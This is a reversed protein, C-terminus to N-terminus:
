KFCLKGSLLILSRQDFDLSILHEMRNKCSGDLLKHM